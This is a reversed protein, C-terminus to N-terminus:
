FIYSFQPLPIMFCRVVNQQVYWIGDYFDHLYKIVSSYFIPVFQIIFAKKNNKLDYLRMLVSVSPKKCITKSYARSNKSSLMSSLLSYNEFLLLESKPHQKSITLKKAFKLRTPSMLTNSIFFAHLEM